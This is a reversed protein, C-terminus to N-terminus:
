FTSTQMNDRSGNAPINGFKCTNIIPANSNGGYLPKPPLSCRNERFVSNYRIISKTLFFIRIFLYMGCPQPKTQCFIGRGWSGNCLPKPYIGWETGSECDSIAKGVYVIYKEQVVLSTSLISNSKSGKFLTIFLTPHVKIIALRPLKISHADAQYASPQPNMGCTWCCEITSNPWSIIELAMSERGSIWSSLYDTVPM